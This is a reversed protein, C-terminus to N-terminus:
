SVIGNCKLVEDNKMDRRRRSPIPRGWHGGRRDARYKRCRATERSSIKPGGRLSDVTPSCENM